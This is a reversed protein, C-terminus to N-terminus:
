QSFNANTLTTDWHAVRAVFIATTSVASNSTDKVKGHTAAKQTNLLHAPALMRNPVAVSFQAVRAWGSCKHSISAREIVQMEVLVASNTHHVQLFISYFLLLVSWQVKIINKVKLSMVWSRMNWPMWVAAPHEGHPSFTSSACHMSPLLIAHLMARMQLYIASVHAALVCLRSTLLWDAYSLQM